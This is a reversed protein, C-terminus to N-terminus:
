RGSPETRLIFDPYLLHRNITSVPGEPSDLHVSVYFCLEILFTAACGKTVTILLIAIQLEM